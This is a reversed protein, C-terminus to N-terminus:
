LVGAVRDLFLDVDDVICPPLLSVLGHLGVAVPSESGEELSGKRRGGGGTRMDKRERERERERRESVSM